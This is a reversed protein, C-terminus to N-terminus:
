LANARASSASQSAAEPDDMRIEALESILSGAWRYVNNEKVTRRMRQMRSRREDADMERATRIADSLQETDYPNVIIADRLERM